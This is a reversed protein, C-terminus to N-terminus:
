LCYIFSKKEKYSDLHNKFYYCAHESHTDTTSGPNGLFKLGVGFPLTLRNNPVCKGFVEQFRFSNSRAPPALLM